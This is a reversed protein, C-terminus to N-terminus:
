HPLARDEMGLDALKLGLEGGRAAVLLRRQILDPINYMLGTIERDFVAGPDPKGTGVRDVLRRIDDVSDISESARGRDELICREFAPKTVHVRDALLHLRPLSVVLCHTSQNHTQFAGRRVHSTQTPGVIEHKIGRGHSPARWDHCTRRLTANLKFDAVM